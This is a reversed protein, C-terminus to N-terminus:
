SDYIPSRETTDSYISNVISSKDLKAWDCVIDLVTQVTHELPLIENDVILISSDEYGEKVCSMGTPAVTIDSFDDEDTGYRRVIEKVDPHEERNLQRLLRTKDSATIYIPLLDVLDEGMDMLTAVGTPNFVGINIKDKSLNDISTGYCWGRFIAVELMKGSNIQEAFDDHSLFHYNVGDKEGERPPRTTCSIIEHFAPAALPLHTLVADKGAGAKGMLAVIKYAM